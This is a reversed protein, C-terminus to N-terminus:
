PPDRIRGDRDREISRRGLSQRPRVPGGTTSFARRCNSTTSSRAAITRFCGWTGTSASITMFIAWSGVGVNWGFRERIVEPRLLHGRRGADPDVRPRGDRVPAGRRRTHRRASHRPDRRWHCRHRQEIRLRGVIRLLESACGVSAEAGFIGRGMAGANARVAARGGSTDADFLNNTNTGFNVGAWPNVYGEARLAAPVCFTAVVILVGVVRGMARRSMEDETRESQHQHNTCAGHEGCIASGTAFRSCRPPCVPCDPEWADREAEVARCPFRLRRDPARRAPM